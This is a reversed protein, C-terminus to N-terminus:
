APFSIAGMVVRVIVLLEVKATVSVRATGAVIRFPAFTVM